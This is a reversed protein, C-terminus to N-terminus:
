PQPEKVEIQNVVEAVTGASEKAYAVIKDKEAVNKVPGVLTVKGDATIIKVNKASMSLTEDAIVAKRIAQTIKIDEPRNSQDLPSKTETPADKKESAAQPVDVGLGAVTLAVWSSFLLSSM